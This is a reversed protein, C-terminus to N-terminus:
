WSSSFSVLFFMNAPTSRALAIMLFLITFDATTM